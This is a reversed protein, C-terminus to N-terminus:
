VKGVALLTIDDLQPKSGAFESISHLIRDLLEGGQYGDHTMLSTMRDQGFMEESKSQTETVGDTYLLVSDSADLQVTEDQFPVDHFTSSLM